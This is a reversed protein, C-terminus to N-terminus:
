QLDKRKCSSWRVGFLISLFSFTNLTQIQWASFARSSWLKFPIAGKRENDNVRLWECRKTTKKLPGIFYMYFKQIIIEGGFSILFGERTSNGTKWERRNSVPTVSSFGIFSHHFVNLGGDLVVM